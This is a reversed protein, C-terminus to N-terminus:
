VIYSLIYDSVAMSQPMVTAPRDTDDSIADTDDIIADTDDIIADTDDSIADTQSDQGSAINDINESEAQYQSSRYESRGDYRNSWIQSALYFLM